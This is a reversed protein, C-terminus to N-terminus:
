ITDFRSAGRMSATRCNQIVVDLVTVATGKELVGTSESNLSAASRLVLSTVAVGFSPMLRTAIENPSEHQTLKTKEVKLHNLNHM